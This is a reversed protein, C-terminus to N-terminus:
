TAGATRYFRAGAVAGARHISVAAERGRLGPMGGPITRAVAGLPYTGGAAGARRTEGGPRGDARYPTLDGARDGRPGPCPAPLVAVQRCRDADGAPCRAWRDCGPM